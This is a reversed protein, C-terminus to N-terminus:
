VNGAFHMLAYQICLDKDYPLVEKEEVPIDPAIGTQHITKTWVLNGSEDDSPLYYRGNTVYLMYRKNLYEFTVQAVGKGYTTAGISKVNCYYQLIGTLIESSSASSGNTLVVCDFGEIEDYLNYSYLTKGEQTSSEISNQTYFFTDQMNGNGANYVYKAMPVGSTEGNPGKVFYSAIFGLIDSAGGGNGRLDLILKNPKDEDNVFQDIAAAFDDVATDGFEELYIYGTNKGIGIEEGDLYFAIPSHFLQKQVTFNYMSTSGTEYNRRLVTYTVTDSGDNIISQAKSLPLHQIVKGNVSVIEDGRRIRVSSEEGGIIDPPTNEAPSGPVVRSVYYRNYDDLSLQIGASMLQQGVPTAEVLGTFNDVSNAMAQAIVYQFEDWDIENIYYKEITDLIKQAFPAKQAFSDQRGYLAGGFFSGIGVAVLLLVVIIITATKSKSSKKVPQPYEKFIQKDDDEFMDM